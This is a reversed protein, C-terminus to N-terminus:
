LEQDLAEKEIEQLLRRIGEIQGEKNLSSKITDWESSSSIPSDIIKQILLNSLKSVVEWQQSRLLNLILSKEGKTLM